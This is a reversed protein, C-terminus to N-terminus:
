WCLAGNLWMCAASRFDGSKFRILWVPNMKQLDMKSWINDAINITKKLM